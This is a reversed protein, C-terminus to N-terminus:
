SRFPSGLAHHHTQHCDPILPWDTRSQGLVKPLRLLPYFDYHIQRECLLQSITICNEMGIMILM